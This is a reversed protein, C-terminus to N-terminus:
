KAHLSLGCSFRIYRKIRLHVFRLKLHNMNTVFTRFTTYIAINGLHSMAVWLMNNNWGSDQKELMLQEWFSIGCHYANNGSLKSLLLYPQGVEDSFFFKVTLIQNSKKLPLIYHINTLCARGADGQRFIQFEQFTEREGVQM